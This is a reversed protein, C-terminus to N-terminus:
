GLFVARLMSLLMQFTSGAGSVHSHAEQGCFLYVGGNLLSDQYMVLDSRSVQVEM